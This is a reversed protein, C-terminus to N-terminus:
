YPNKCNKMKLVEAELEEIRKRAYLSIVDVNLSLYNKVKKNMKRSTKIHKWENSDSAYIFGVEKSFEILRRAEDITIKM